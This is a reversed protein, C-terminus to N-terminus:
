KQWLANVSGEPAELQSEVQNIQTSDQLLFFPDPLVDKLDQASFSKKRETRCSANVTAYGWFTTQYYFTDDVYFVKINM